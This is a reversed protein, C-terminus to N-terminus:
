RNGVVSSLRVEAYVGMLQLVKLVRPNVVQRGDAVICVVVKKWAGHGWTKSRDRSSLHAINKIVGNLTRLLLGDDENYMTMVIFLETTRGYLYPRLTFKRAMFEDPDCTAATYRMKTMEDEEVGLGSTSPVAQKPVAVDMVLNGNRLPIQKVVRRELLQQKANHWHSTGSYQSPQSYTSYAYPGPGPRPPYYQQQTDYQMPPVPPVVSGIEWEKNGNLHTQSTYSKTEDPFDSRFSRVSPASPMTQGNYGNGYADNPGARSTPLYSMEHGPQQHGQDAPYLHDQSHFSQDAAYNDQHYGGNQYGPSPPRHQNASSQSFYSDTPQTYDQAAAFNPQAHAYANPTTSAYTPAPSPIPNSAYRGSSPPSTRAGYPSQRPNLYDDQRRYDDQHGYSM